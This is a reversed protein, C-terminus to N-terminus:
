NKQSAAAAAGASAAASRGRRGRPGPSASGSGAVRGRRQGGAEGSLRRAIRALAAGVASRRLKRHRQRPGSVAAPPPAARAPAPAGVGRSPESRFRRPSGTEEAVRSEGSVDRFRRSRRERNGPKGGRPLPRRRRKAKRNWSERSTATARLPSGTGRGTVRAAGRAHATGQRPAGPEERTGTPEADGNRVDSGRSGIGTAVCPIVVRVAPPRKERGRAPSDTVPRPAPSVRSPVAEPGRVGGPFARGPFLPPSTSARAPAPARSPRAFARSSQCRFRRLSGTASATSARGRRGGSVDRVPEAGM